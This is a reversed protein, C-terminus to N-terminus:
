CRAPASKPAAKPAAPAPVLVLRTTVTVENGLTATDAWEGGGVGFDLRKLRAEGELVPRPGPTWRFALTVPKRLGRLSLEGGAAFRGGGLALVKTATFRAQPTRAVAFFDAGRLLADGDENGSSAGALDVTM